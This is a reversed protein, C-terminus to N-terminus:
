PTLSQLLIAEMGRTAGIQAQVLSGRCVDVVTVRSADNGIEGCIGRGKCLLPFLYKLTLTVGSISVSSAHEALYSAMECWNCM